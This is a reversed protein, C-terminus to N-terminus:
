NEVSDWPGLEADTLGTRLTDLSDELASVYSELEMRSLTEPDVKNYELTTRIADGINVTEIRIKPDQREFVICLEGEIMMFSADRIM